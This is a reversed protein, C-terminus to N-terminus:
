RLSGDQPADGGGGEQVAPEKDPAARHTRGRQGDRGARDGLVAGEDRGSRNVM